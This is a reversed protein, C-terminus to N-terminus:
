FRLGVEALRFALYGEGTGVDLVYKEGTRDGANSTLISILKATTDDKSDKIQEKVRNMERLAERGEDTLAFIERREDSKVLNGGQVAQLVQELNSDGIHLVSGPRYNQNDTSEQEITEIVKERTAPGEDLM